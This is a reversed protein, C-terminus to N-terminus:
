SENNPEIDKLADIIKENQNCLKICVKEFTSSLKKVESYNSKKIAIEMMMLLAEENDPKLLLVTKLNKEELKPNKKYNYIKALYLYANSKKPNFVITKEFMFKANDYKKENYMKVADEYFTVNSLAKTALCIFFIIFFIPKLNKKM